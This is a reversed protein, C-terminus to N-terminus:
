RAFSLGVLEIYGLGAYRNLSSWNLQPSGPPVIREYRLRNLIM